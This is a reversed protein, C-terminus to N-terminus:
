EKTGRSLNALIAASVVLLGGGIRIATMNEGLVLWSGFATVFPVLNIFMSARVASLVGLAYNYAFFAGVTSFLALSLVASWQRTGIGTWAVDATQFLFFPAFFLAGYIMQYSTVLFAPYDEGM